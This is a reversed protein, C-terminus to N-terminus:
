NVIELLKNPTKTLRILKNRGVLFSDEIRIGGWKPLYIGPEITFTMGEEVTIDCKSSLSPMEHVELGFSHGLGHGFYEGYGAQAIHDRAVKDVDNCNVGPKLAKMAKAQAQFVINYIDKFKKTAKGLFITRTMDSHYGNFVAGFDIKVMEGKKLKKNTPQAHPCSANKGSAVITSFSPQESGLIKMYYELKAAVQLETMGPCIEKILMAFAKDAIAFAIKLMPIEEKEKIQRMQQIFLGAPVIDGSFEEKIKLYLSLSLSTEVGLKKVRCTKARKIITEISNSSFVILKASDGIEKAAQEQYRFDTFFWAKNRTVLLYGCSGSFGALYAINALDTVLLAQYEDNKQVYKQLTKIRRTFNM